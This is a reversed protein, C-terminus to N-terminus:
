HPRYYKSDGEVVTWPATITSTKLLMENVAAEYNIGNKATAGTKM